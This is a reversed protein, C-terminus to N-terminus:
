NCSGELRLRVVGNDDVGLYEVGGAKSGLYPRVRDLARQIRADADLPHLDDVPDLAAPGRVTLGAGDRTGGVDRTERLARAAATTPGSTPGCATSRGSSAPTPM